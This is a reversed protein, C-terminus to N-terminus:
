RTWNGQELKEVVEERTKGTVPPIQQGHSHIDAEFRRFAGDKTVRWIVGAIGPDTPHKWGGAHIHVESPTNPWTMGPTYGGPPPRDARTNKVPGSRDVGGSAEAM